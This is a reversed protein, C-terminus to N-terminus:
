SIFKAYIDTRGPFSSLQSRCVLGCVCMHGVQGDWSLRLSYQCTPWFLALMRCGQRNDQPGLGVNVKRNLSSTKASLFRGLLAFYAFVLAQSYTCLHQDNIQIILPVASCQQM